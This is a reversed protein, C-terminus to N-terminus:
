PPGGTPAFDAVALAAVFDDIAVDVAERGGRGGNIMVSFALRRGERAMMVGSLASVRRLHGTKGRLTIRADGMRDELTGDLGGLPLSALFEPGSELDRAAALIVRVLSAPSVRNRPSLGSGDAVVTGEDILDRERLLERVARTGSEWTGPVGVREAGLLKTLQEAIFNNSFKNLRQVIQGVPEGEFRLLEHADEPASAFRVAGSVRIGQTRLQSALIAVAYREPQSVARWYTKPEGDRAIAGRVRVTEGSGDPLPALEVQLPADTAITRADSRVRFYGVNPALSVSALGGTQNAASVDIRFSSYNAAFASTPAHYARSSLPEWDGHTRRGDFYSADVAIGGRIERVGRLRLEEALKWLSESLLSPDGSGVLWLPGDLVGGAGAPREVLVRTVFRHAPGWHLLAAAAVLLKQNSAPVMPRASARELLVDGNDLDAVAVGVRAGRLAPAHLLQELAAHASEARVPLAMLVLPLALALAGAPSRTSVPLSGSAIWRPVPVGDPGFTPWAVRSSWERKHAGSRFAIRVQM